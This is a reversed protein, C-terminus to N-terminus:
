AGHHLAVNRGGEHPVFIYIKQLNVYMKGVDHWKLQTHAGIAAIFKQGTHDTLYVDTRTGVSEMSDVTASIANGMQRPFELPSIDEARLGLVMEHGCYDKLTQRFYEPLMIVDNGLQFCAADKQFKIRGTLFNMAPTGLFGAVFINDPEDYLKLPEDIQQAVGDKMVVIRDGM